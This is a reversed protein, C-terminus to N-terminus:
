PKVMNTAFQSAAALRSQFEEPLDPVHGVLPHGYFAVEFFIRPQNRKIQRSGPWNPSHWVRGILESPLVSEKNWRFISARNICYQPFVAHSRAYKPRRRQWRCFAEAPLTKVVERCVCFPLAREAVRAQCGSASTGGRLNADLHGAGRRMLWWTVHGDPSTVTYAYDYVYSIGITEFMARRFHELWCALIGNGAASVARGATKPRTPSPPYGSAPEVSCAGTRFNATM